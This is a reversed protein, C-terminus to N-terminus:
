FKPREVVKLVGFTSDVPEPPPRFSNQEPTPTCCGSM